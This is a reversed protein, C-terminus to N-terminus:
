ILLGDDPAPRDPLVDVTQEKANRLRFRDICRHITVRRLWFPLRVLYPATAAM